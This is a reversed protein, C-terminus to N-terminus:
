KCGGTEYWGQKKALYDKKTQTQKNICKAKKNAAAGAKQIQDGVRSWVANKEDERAKEEAIKQAERNKYKKEEANLIDIRRKERETVATREKTIKSFYSNKNQTAISKYNQIRYNIAARAEPRSDFAIALEGDLSQNPRAAYVHKENDNKYIVYARNFTAGGTTIDIGNIVEYDTATNTNTFTNKIANLIGSNTDLSGPNISVFEKGDKLALIDFNSFYPIKYFDNQKTEPYAWHQLSNDIFGLVGEPRKAIDGRQNFLIPWYLNREKNVIRFPIIFTRKHDGNYYTRLVVENAPIPELDLLKGEIDYRKYYKKDGEKHRVLFGYYFGPLVADFLERDDFFNRIPEDLNSFKNPYLRGTKSNIPYVDGNSKQALGLWNLHSDRKGGRKPYWIKKIDTDAHSNTKINFVEFTDSNNKRLYIVEDSFSRINAYKPPIVWSKSGRKVMGMYIGSTTDKEWCYSYKQGGLTAVGNCTYSERFSACSNFILIILAILFLKM